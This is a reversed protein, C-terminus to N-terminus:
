EGGTISKGRLVAKHRPELRRKGRLSYMDLDGIGANGAIGRGISQRPEIPRHRLPGVGHEDLKASIVHQAPDVRLDGALRKIGNQRSQCLTVDSHHEAAHPCRRSQAGIVRAFKLRDIGFERFIITRHKIRKEEITYGGIAGQRLLVAQM